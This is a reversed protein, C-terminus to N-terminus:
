EPKKSFDVNCLLFQAMDGFWTQVRKRVMHPVNVTQGMICELEDGDAQISVVDVVNKYNYAYQMQPGVHRGSTDGNKFKIVLM